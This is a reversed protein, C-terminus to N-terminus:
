NFDSAELGLHELVGVVDDEEGLGLVSSYAAPNM